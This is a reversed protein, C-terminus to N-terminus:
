KNVEGRWQTDRIKRLFNGMFFVKNTEKQLEQFDKENSNTAKENQPNFHM